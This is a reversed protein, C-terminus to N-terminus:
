MVLLQQVLIVQSTILLRTIALTCEHEDARFNVIMTYLIYIVMIYIWLFSANETEATSLRQAQNALAYLECIFSSKKIVYLPAATDFNGAM